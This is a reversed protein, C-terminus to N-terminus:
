NPVGAKDMLDELASWYSRFNNDDCYKAFRTAVRKPIHLTLQTAPEKPPRRRHGGGAQEDLAPDTGANRPSFGLEAARRDAEAETQPDPSHAESPTFDSLDEPRPTERPRADKAARFGFKDDTM